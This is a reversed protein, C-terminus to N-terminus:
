EAIACTTATWMYQDAHPLPHSSEGDQEGRRPEDWCRDRRLVELAHQHGALHDGPMRLELVVAALAVDLEIARRLIAEAEITVLRDRRVDRAVLAIVATDVDLRAAGTVRVVLTALHLDRENVLLSEIVRLSVECETSGVRARLAFTAMHGALLETFRGPRAVVAVALVVHVFAAEAGVAGRAVAVRCPLWRAEVVGPRAERQGALM